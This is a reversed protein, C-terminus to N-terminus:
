AFVSVLLVVLACIAVVLRVELADKIAILTDRLNRLLDPVSSPLDGSQDMLNNTYQTMSQVTGLLKTASSAKRASKFSATANGGNANPFAKEDENGDWAGALIISNRRIDVMDAEDFDETVTLTPQRGDLGTPAGNAPNTLSALMNRPNYWISRDTGVEKCEVWGAPGRSSKGDENDSDDEDATGSM